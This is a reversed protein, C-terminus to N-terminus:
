KTPNESVKAIIGNGCFSASLSTVSTQSLTIAATGKPPTNVIIAAPLTVMITVHVSPLLVVQTVAMIMASELSGSTRLGGTAAPIVTILRSNM